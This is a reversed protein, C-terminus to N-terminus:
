RWERSAPQPGDDGCNPECVDHLIDQPDTPNKIAADAIQNAPQLPDTKDKEKLRSLETLAGPEPNDHRDSVVSRRAPVEVHTQCIWTWAVAREV